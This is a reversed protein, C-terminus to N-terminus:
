IEGRCKDLLPPLSRKGLQNLVEACISGIELPSVGGLNNIMLVWGEAPEGPDLYSRDIDGTSLLGELMINVLNQLTPTAMRKSGQENHIGMGLEIEGTKLGTDGFATGPVHVHALSSGMSVLNSAVLRALAATEQLDAGTAALAGAIKNTLVTGAIGRRGVKGSKARGVGVDDGVVVMEIDFGQARAKETALGFHLVDGTYNM